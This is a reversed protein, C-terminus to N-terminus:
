GLKTLASAYLAGIIQASHTKSPLRKNLQFQVREKDSQIPNGSFAFSMTECCYNTWLPKYKKGQCINPISNSQIRILSIGAEKRLNSFDDESVRFKSWHTASIWYFFFFCPIDSVSVSEFKSHLNNLQYKQGMRIKFLSPRTIPPGISNM